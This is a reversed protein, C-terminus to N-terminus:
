STVMGVPRLRQRILIDAALAIPYAITVLQIVFRASVMVLDTSPVFVTLSLPVVIYNMVVYVGVSFVFCSVHLNRFLRPAVRMVGVYVGGAGIAVVMHLSFGTAALVWGGAMAAEGFVGSAVALLVQMASADNTLGFLVMAAAMNVVGGLGGGALAALVYRPERQTMSPATTNSM